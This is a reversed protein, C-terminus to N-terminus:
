VAMEKTGEQRGRGSKIVGTIVKSGGLYDPIMDRNLTLQNAVKM